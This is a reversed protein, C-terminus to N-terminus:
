AMLWCTPPACSSDMRTTSSSRRRWIVSRSRASPLGPDGFSRPPGTCSRSASAPSTTHLGAPSSHRRSRTWNNSSVWREGRWYQRTCAKRHRLSWHDDRLINRDSQDRLAIVLTGHFQSVQAIKPRDGLRLAEALRGAPEVDDLRREALGHRIELALEADSKQGAVRAARAQGRFTLHEQLFGVFDKRVGVAGDFQNTPCCPALNTRQGDAEQSGRGREEQGPDDALVTPAERANPERQALHGRRTLDVFESGASEVDPEGTRDRCCVLGPKSGL